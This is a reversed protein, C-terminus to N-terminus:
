NIYIIERSEGDPRNMERILQERYDALKRLAAEIGPERSIVPVFRKRMRVINPGMAFAMLVPVDTMLHQVANAKKPDGHTEEEPTSNDVRKLYQAEGTQLNFSYIRYFGASGFHEETFHEGDDTACAIKIEKTMMTNENVM